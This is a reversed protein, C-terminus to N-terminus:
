TKNKLVGKQQYRGQQSEPMIGDNNVLDTRWQRITRDSKHVMKATLEAAETDKMKFHLSLNYCLFMSLSKKDDHDLSMIWEESFQELIDHSGRPETGTQSQSNDAPANSSSAASGSAVTDPQSTSTSPDPTSPASERSTEKLKKITERAIELAAASLTKRKSKPAM